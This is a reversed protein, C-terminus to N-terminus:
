TGLWGARLRDRYQGGDADLRSSDARDAPHWTGLRGTDNPGVGSRLQRMPADDPCPAQQFEGLNSAPAANGVKGCLPTVRLSAPDLVPTARGLDSMPSLWRRVREPRHGKM